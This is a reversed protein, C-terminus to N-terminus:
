ARSFKRQGGVFVTQVRGYLAQGVLPNNRSRSYFDENCVTWQKEPDILIVDAPRGVQLSGAEVGLVHAPKTSFAELARQWSLHGPRILYTVVQAVATDLTSMGFPVASLEQMKKELARPQHGSTLM